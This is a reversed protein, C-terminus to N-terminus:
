THILSCTEAQTKLRSFKEGGLAVTQDLEGAILELQGCRLFAAAGEALMQFRLLSLRPACWLLEGARGARLNERM